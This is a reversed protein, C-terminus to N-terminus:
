LLCMKFFSSKVLAKGLLIFLSQYLATSNMSVLAACRRRASSNKRKQQRIPACCCLLYKFRQQETPVFHLEVSIEASCFQFSFPVDDLKLHTDAELYNITSQNACCISGGSVLTWNPLKCRPSSPTKQISSNHSSAIKPLIKQLKM